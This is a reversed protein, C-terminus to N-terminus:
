ATALPPLRVTGERGKAIPPRRGVRHPSERVILLPTTGHEVLDGTVSGFPLETRGTRGHGSLVVLDARQAEIIRLLGSRVEGDHALVTRVMLGKDDLRAQLRGLYDRAVRENREVLRRELDLDEPTLPGTRTLEPVPVVHALVLESRQSRALRVALPLASEARPSGDLPALVRAYRVEPKPAEQVSWAPVLLLSGEIGEMLKKATSALSWETRGSAGHSCLVTLDVEHGRVWDRIQEAARGEVLEVRVDLDATAEQGSVEELYIQAEARRLEWEFADSPAREGDDRRPELVHLVTLQAMFKRAVAAAHPLLRDAIPSRDVCVAVHEIAARAPTGEPGSAGGEHPQTSVVYQSNRM